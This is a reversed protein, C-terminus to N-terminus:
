AAIWSMRDMVYRGPCATRGWQSGYLTWSEQHGHIPWHGSEHGWIRPTARLLSRAKRRQRYPSSVLDYNGMLVVAVDSNFDGTHPRGTDVDGTYFARGNGFVSFNYPYVERGGFLRLRWIRVLHALQAAIEHGDQYAIATHHVWLHRILEPARWYVVGRSLAADDPLYPRADYVWTMGGILIKDM